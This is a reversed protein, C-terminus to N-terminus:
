KEIEFAAENRQQIANFYDSRLQLAQNVLIVWDLYGTESAQLRQTATHIITTANPLLQQQYEFVLQNRQLYVQTAAHLSAQLQQAAAATEQIRQSVQIDAAKIRSRQAGSFIPIGIGINASSFRKSGAFYLEQHEKTTQWGIISTNNYGATFSPM